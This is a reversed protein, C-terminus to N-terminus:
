DPTAAPPEVRGGEAVWQAIGGELFRAAIGRERLQQAAGQSVEHGHVCYVVVSQGRLADGWQAVADPLRRLAGTVMAPDKAFAPARRVDVVCPPSSTLLIAQLEQVTISTTM